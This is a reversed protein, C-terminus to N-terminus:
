YVLDSINQLTYKFVVDLFCPSFFLISGVHKSFIRGLPPRPWSFQFFVPLRACCRSIDTGSPSLSSLHHITHAPLVVIM